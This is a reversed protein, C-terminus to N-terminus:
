KASRIRFATSPIRAISPLRAAANSASAPSSDDFLGCPTGGSNRSAATALGPRNVAAETANSAINPRRGALVTSQRVAIARSVVEVGFENLRGTLWASNTDRRFPTLLESGVAVIGATVIPRM